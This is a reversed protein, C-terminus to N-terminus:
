KLLSKVKTLELDRRHLLDDIRYKIEVDPLVGRGTITPYADHILRFAPVRIKIKTSPLTYYTTVGANCGELAGSTESGVLTARGAHKLYAAVTCAASFTGGNILVYIKGNYHHKRFPKIKQTYSVTDGNVKKTGVINLVWKTFRFSGNGYTYKRLPFSRVHTRLTVTGTTDILYRLFRYSNSLNGGGNNRLDIVLNETKEKQLKRFLKRYVRKYYFSRFSRIRVYYSPKSADIEGAKVDARRYKKLTSDERPWIPLYDLDKLKVSRLWATKIQEKKRYEIQVSDPRGFVSPYSFVFGSRLYMDKGTRIFGDSTIFRSLYNVISDASVSNFSLIPTGIKLLSDRKPNLPIATYIKGDLPVFYYPLFNMAMPRIAKIYNKSYLVESHGCHLEDVLLKLRVRFEKETLSDTIGAILKDFLAEYYARPRYIGIVPHMDMIAEKAVEADKILAAPAYKRDISYNKQAELHGSSFCMFFLLLLASSTNKIRKKYM